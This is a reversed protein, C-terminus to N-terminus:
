LVIAKFIDDEPGFEDMLLGYLDEKFQRAEEVLDRYVQTNLGEDGPLELAARRNGDNLCDLFVAYRSLPLDMEDGFITRLRAIPWIALLNGLKRRKEAVALDRTQSVAAVGGVYLLIRSFRLKMLRVARPKAADATKHEFDVCITRWYRIIDNLLFMCLKGDGLGDAVYGEILRDRTREFMTRNHIWEGELLFLMRRTIFENTDDGGGITDVLRDVGLPKEFVGGSAPMSLGDKELRRRYAQQAERTEDDTEKGDFLFFLDVDSGRTCERRAVSGNVGILHNRDGAFMEQAIDRMLNLQRTSEAECGSLIRSRDDSDM